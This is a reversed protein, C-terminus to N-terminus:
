RDKMLLLLWAGTYSVIDLLTVAIGAVVDDVEFPGPKTPKYRPQELVRDSNALFRTQLHAGECAQEDVADCLGFVWIFQCARAL